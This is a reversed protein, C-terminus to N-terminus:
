SSRQIASQESGFVSPQSITFQRGFHLFGRHLLTVYGDKILEFPFSSLLQLLNRKGATSLTCCPTFMVTQCLAADKWALAINFLVSLANESSSSSVYFLNPDTSTTHLARILEEAAARHTLEAIPDPISTLREVAGSVGGTLMLAVEEADQKPYIVLATLQYDTLIKTLWFYDRRQNRSVNLCLDL